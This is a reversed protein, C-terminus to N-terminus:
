SAGATKFPLALTCLWLLYVGGVVRQYAGINDPSVLLYAPVLALWLILFGGYILKGGLNGSAVLHRAFLCSMIVGVSSAIISLMITHLTNDQLSFVYGLSLLLLANAISLVQICRTVLGARPNNVRHAILAQSVAFMALVIAHQWTLGTQSLASIPSRNWLLDSQRLLFLHGLLAGLCGALMLLQTAMSNTLLSSMNTPNKTYAM